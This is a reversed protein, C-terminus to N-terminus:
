GERVYDCADGYSHFEEQDWYFERAGECSLTKELWEAFSHAIVPNGQIGFKEKTAVCIPSFQPNYEGDNLMQRNLDLNILLHRGDSLQAFRHWTHGDPGFSGLLEESENWDVSEISDKEFIEIHGLNPFNLEASDFEFYFQDFEPPLYSSIDNRLEAAANPFLNIREAKPFAPQHKESVEILLCRFKSAKRVVWGAKPELTGSQRDHEVGVLGGLVQMSRLKGSDTKWKFPAQSLGDPASFTQWGEGTEFVPNRTTCPGGVFSRIYPFMKAVWGNIKHGGYADTLKCINRWFEIDIDNRRAAAFQQLILKLEDFWWDMEFCRLAEVKEELRSWDDPPGVLTVAPIGCIGVIEYRFFRQFIDLMVVQSAAREAPGSTSFDCILSQYLDDGVHQRIQDTWDEFAESWPNEPSGPIWGDTEVTLTLKGQHKIVRNRIKKGEAAMHHAVGGAITLWISDPTLRIPLHKCYATYVTALLPHYSLGAAFKCSYDSCSEIDSGLRSRMAAVLLDTHLRERGVEVEDVPFTFEGTDLSASPM